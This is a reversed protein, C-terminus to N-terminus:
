SPPDGHYCDVLVWAVYDNSRNDRLLAVVQDVRALVGELYVRSRVLGLDLLGDLVDELDLNCADVGQVTLALSAAGLEADALALVGLAGDDGQLGAGDVDEGVDTLAQPM